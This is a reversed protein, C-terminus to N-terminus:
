ELPDAVLKQNSMLVRASKYKLFYFYAESQEISVLVPFIIKRGPSLEKDNYAKYRFIIDGAPSYFFLDGTFIKVTYKTPNYIIIELLLGKKKKGSLSKMSSVRAKLLDNKLVLENGTTDPVNEIDQQEDSSLNTNSDLRKEIAEIRKEINELRKETKKDLAFVSLSYLLFIITATFLNRM